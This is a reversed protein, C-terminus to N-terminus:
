FPIRLSVFGVNECKVVTVGACNLYYRLYHLNSNITGINPISGVDQSDNIAGPPVTSLEISCHESSPLKIGHSSSIPHGAREGSFPGRKPHESKSSQEASYLAGVQNPVCSCYIESSKELVMIM